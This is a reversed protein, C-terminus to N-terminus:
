LSKLRYNILANYVKYPLYIAYEDAVKQIYKEKVKKYDMFAEEVQDLKYKRKSLYRYNGCRCTVMIYPDKVRKNITCGVPLGDSKVINVGIFLQNIKGPVLLCTNPSYIKKGHSLIDKDVQLSENPIDYYNDDYWKAFNQFNLWENCVFCDRYGAYRNENLKYPDYCRRLMDKWADYIQQHNSWSYDGVGFYGINYVTRDYPNKIDGKIFNCCTNKVRHKYEDQFEVIINDYTIYEVIKMVTGYNNTRTDGINFKRKRM